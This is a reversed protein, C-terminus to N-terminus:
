LRRLKILVRESHVCTQTSAARCRRRWSRHTQTRWCQQCIPSFHMYLKMKRFSQCSLLRLSRVAVPLLVSQAVRRCGAFSDVFYLALFGFVFLRVALLDVNRLPKGHQFLVIQLNDINAVDVIHKQWRYVDTCFVLSFQLFTVYM